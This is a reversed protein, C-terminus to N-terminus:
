LLLTPLLPWPDPAVEVFLAPGILGLALVTLPAVRRADNRCRYIVLTVLLATVIALAAVSRQAYHIAVESPIGVLLGGGGILLLGLAVARFPRGSSPAKGTSGEPASVSGGRSLRLRSSRSLRSRHRSSRPQPPRSRRPHGVSRALARERTPM